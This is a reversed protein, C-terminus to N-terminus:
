QFALRFAETVPHAHRVRRALHEPNFYARCRSIQGNEFELITVGEYSVLYGASSTGRTSWEIASHRDTFVVRHIFSEVDGFWRRYISWFERAGQRGFFVNPSVVNSVDCQESFLSVMDDINWERELAELAEVFRYTVNM